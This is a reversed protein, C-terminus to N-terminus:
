VCHLYLLGVEHFYRRESSWCETRAVRCTEQRVDGMIKTNLTSGTRAFNRVWTKIAHASASWCSNRQLGSSGELNVGLSWGFQEGHKYFAKVAFLVDHEQEGARTAVLFAKFNDASYRYRSRDGWHQRVLFSVTNCFPGIWQRMRYMDRWSACDWYEVKKRLNLEM